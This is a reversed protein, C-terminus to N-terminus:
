SLKLHVNGVYAPGRRLGGSLNGAVDADYSLTPTLWSPSARM